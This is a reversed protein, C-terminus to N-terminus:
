KHKYIKGEVLKEPQNRFRIPISRRGILVTFHLHPNTTYGTNGSLGIVQGAFVRDGVEVVAGRYKLHAYAAVSGDDHCVLIRNSKRMLALKNGGTTYREVIVGVVGGRTAAVYSGTPMSFDYAYKSIISNHTHPTDNGQTLMHQEGEPFPLNYRYRDDHVADPDGLYYTYVLEERIRALKQDTANGWQAIVRKKEVPILAKFTTDSVPDNATLSVPCPLNNYGWLTITNEKMEPYVFLTRQAETIQCSGALLLISILVRM